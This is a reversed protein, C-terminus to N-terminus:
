SLDFRQMMEKPADHELMVKGLARLLRREVDEDRIPHLEGPDKRLDYLRTETDEFGDGDHNPVRMSDDRAKIKLVSVGKTHSFPEVLEMHRLEQLSFPGRMHMPLLRYEHLNTSDLWKPRYHFAYDGDTILIPGGFVGSLAVEHHGCDQALLPMLSKGTAEPPSELGYMETLTPLIDIASTLASRREGGCSKFEPHYVMLPIHSIEQYQPMKVKAWWDHESLLYGHDTTTILVTDDWANEADFRDLLRGLYDDCMAVLGAYKARIERIESETESVRSYTPWDLVMGDYGTDYTRAFREPVHFPEHPDFCELQLLWNDAGRAADLFEFAEAFCQPLPFEAEKSIWERNVAHQLKHRSRASNSFDYHRSDYTRRFKELDPNLSPKWPDYEQGRINVWTDFSTHYCLGGDEFYHLHDTILHCYTDLNARLLRSYSNDFPELPGWSSHFFGYRGTHHDRRAPMCPLSGTYHNDFTVARQALRDFNPTATAGGYHGLAKRNLSDFLLFVVKM